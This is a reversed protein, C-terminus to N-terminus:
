EDPPTGRIVDSIRRLISTGSRRDSESARRLAAQLARVHREDRDVPVEEADVAQSSGEDGTSEGAM